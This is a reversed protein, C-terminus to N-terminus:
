ADLKDKIIQYIHNAQDDPVDSFREYGHNTILDKAESALTVNKGCLEKLKMLMEATNSVSSNSTASEEPEEKEVTKIKSKSLEEQVIKRILDELVKEISM